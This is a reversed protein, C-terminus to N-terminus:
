SRVFEAECFRGCPGHFQFRVAGLMNWSSGACCHVLAFGLGASGRFGWSAGVSFEVCCEGLMLSSHRFQV